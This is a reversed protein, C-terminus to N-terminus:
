STEFSSSHISSSEFRIWLDSSDSFFFSSRAEGSRCGSASAFCIDLNPTDEFTPFSDRSRVHTVFWSLCWACVWFVLCLSLVDFWFFLYGVFCVRLSRGLVIRQVWCRTSHKGVIGHMEIKEVVSELYLSISQQTCHQRWCIRTEGMWLTWKSVRLCLTWRNQFECWVKASVCLLLQRLRNTM